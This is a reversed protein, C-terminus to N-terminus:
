NLYSFSFIPKPAIQDTIDFNYYKTIQDHYRRICAWSLYCANEFIYINKSITDFGKIDNMYFYLAAVAVHKAATNEIWEKGIPSIRCVEIIRRVEQDIIDINYSIGLQSVLLNIRRIYFMIMKEPEIITTGSPAYETLAQEMEKRPLKVIDAAYAPDVPCGLENYSMFVCYFILRIKRSGKISKSRQFVGVSNGRNDNMKMSNIRYYIDIAKSIIETEIQLQQITTVIEPQTTSIVTSYANYGGMVIVNSSKEIENYTDVGAQESPTTISNNNFNGPLCPNSCMM